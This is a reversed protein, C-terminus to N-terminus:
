TSQSRASVDSGEAGEPAETTQSSPDPDAPQQEPEVASAAGQLVLLISLLLAFLRLTRRKM